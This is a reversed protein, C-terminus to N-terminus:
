QKQRKQANQSIYGDQVQPCDSGFTHGLQQCAVCAAYHDGNKGDTDEWWIKDGAYLLEHEVLALKNDVFHKKHLTM